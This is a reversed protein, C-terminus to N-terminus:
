SERPVGCLMLRLTMFVLVTLPQAKVSDLASAAGIVPVVSTTAQPVSLKLPSPVSAPAVMEVVVATGATALFLKPQWWDPPGGHMKAVGLVAAGYLTGALALLALILLVVLLATRGRAEDQARFFDMQASM